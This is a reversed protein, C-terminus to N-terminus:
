NNELIINKKNSDLIERVGRALVQPTLPKHLFNVGDKLIGHDVIADETYGSMFIVEIGPRSKQDHDKHKRNKEKKHESRGGYDLIEIEGDLEQAIQNQTRKSFLRGKGAM